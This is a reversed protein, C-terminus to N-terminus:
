VINLAKRIKNMVKLRDTKLECEWIVICRWKLARLKKKKTIDREVNKEFKMRWFDSNSKPLPLDCKPCRHWFCGDIFLALKKKTFVIDPTGPLKKVHLRYGRIGDAYILKRLLLEPSTNKSKNGRMSKSVAESTARPARSDM